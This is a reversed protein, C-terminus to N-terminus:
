FFRFFFFRCVRVDLQDEINAIVKSLGAQLEHEWKSLVDSVGKDPALKPTVALTECSWVGAEFRAAVLYNWDCGAKYLYPPESLLEHDHAGLVLGFKSKGCLAAIRRDDQMRCHTLAVITDCKDELHAVMRQACAVADEAVLGRTDFNLCSVFDSGVVGFFGVRVGGRELIVSEVTGEIKLNSCLWPFRCQAELKGFCEVGFDLDHNGIVCVDV